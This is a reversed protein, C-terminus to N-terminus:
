KVRLSEKLQALHIEASNEWLMCAVDKPVLHCEPNPGGLAELCAMALGKGPWALPQTSQLISAVRWTMQGQFLMLCLILIIGWHLPRRSLSCFPHRMTRM